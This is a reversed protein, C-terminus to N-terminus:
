EEIYDNLFKDAAQICKDPLEKVIENSKVYDITGGVGYIILAEKTTPTFIRCIFTITFLLIFLIINNRFNKHAKKYEQESNYNTRSLIYYMIIYVTSLAFFLLLFVEFCVCLKDLRTIWYLENM